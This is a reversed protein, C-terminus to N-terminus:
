SSIGLSELEAETFYLLVVREGLEALGPDRALTKADVSFDTGEAQTDLALLIGPPKRPDTVLRLLPLQVIVKVSQVIPDDEADALSFFWEAERQNWLFRFVFDRGDLSTTQRYSSLTTSTPIRVSM